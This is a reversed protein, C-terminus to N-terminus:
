SRLDLARVCARVVDQARLPKRAAAHADSPTASFQPTCQTRVMSACLSITGGAGIRWLAHVWYKEWYQDFHIGRAQIAQYPLEDYDTIGPVRYYHNDEEKLQSWLVNRPNATLRIGGYDCEQGAELRAQCLRKCHHAVSAPLFRECPQWM